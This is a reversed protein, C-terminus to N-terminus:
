LRAIARDIAARDYLNKRSSVKRIADASKAFKVATKRSMRLYATLERTNMLYTEVELNKM